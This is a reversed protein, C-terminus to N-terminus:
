VISPIDFNESDNFVLQFTGENGYFDTVQVKPYRICNQWGQKAANPELMTLKYLILSPFGNDDNPYEEGVYPSFQFYLYDDSSDRYTVVTHDAFQLYIRKQREFFLNLQYNSHNGERGIVACPHAGDESIITFGKIWRGGVFVHGVNVHENKIPNYIIKYNKFTTQGTTSMNPQFNVFRRECTGNSKTYRPKDSEHSGRPWAKWPLSSSINVFSGVDMTINRKDGYNIKPNSTISVVMKEAGSANDATTFHKGNDTDVSVAIRKTNVDNTYVYMIIIVTGDDAKTVRNSQLSRGQIEKSYDNEVDTFCWGSNGKRSLKKDSEAFCLSLLNIWTDKSINLPEHSKNSAKVTIEIPLQNKGNAYIKPSLTGSVTQIKLTDMYEIDSPNDYQVTKTM